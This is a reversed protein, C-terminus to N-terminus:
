DPVELKMTFTSGKFILLNTDPPTCTTLWGLFDGEGTAAAGVLVDGPVGTHIQSIIAHAIIIHKPATTKM